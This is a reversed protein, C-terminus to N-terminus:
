PTEVKGTGECEPCPGGTTLRGEGDCWGCTVTVPYADAPLARLEFDTPPYQERNRPM